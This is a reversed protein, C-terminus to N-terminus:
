PRTTAPASSSRWRRARARRPARSAPRTRPRRPRHWPWRRCRPGRCRRRRRSGPRRGSVPRGAPAREAVWASFEEDTVLAANMETASYGPSIANVQVGSRALDAAMGMTLVVIGGKTAAHPAITRRALVSQVSGIDVVKGSGREAMAPTIARSVHFASSLNASVAADWDGVAFQTFPARRQIGVNNVLVDPVGHREILEACGVAVAAADTVDFGATEVRTGTAEALEATVRALRQEDRGHLVM